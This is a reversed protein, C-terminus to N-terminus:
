ISEEHQIRIKTMATVIKQFPIDTEMLEEYVVLQEESMWFTHSYSMFIQEGKAIHKTAVVPILTNDNIFKIMSNNNKKENLYHIVANKIRVKLIDLELGDEIHLPNSDNIIHGVTSMNDHIERNMFITYDEGMNVMYNTLLHFQINNYFYHRKYGEKNIDKKDCIAHIPVFTIVYGKEIDKTAFLGNGMTETAQVEVYNHLLEPPNQTLSLMSAVKDQSHKNPLLGLKKLRDVSKTIYQLDTLTERDNKMNDVLVYSETDTEVVHENAERVRELVDLADMGDTVSAMTESTELLNM